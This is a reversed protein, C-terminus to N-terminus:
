IVLNLGVTFFDATYEKSFKFESFHWRYGAVLVLGGNGVKCIRLGIRPTIYFGMNGDSSTNESYKYEPIWVGSPTYHGSEGTKSRISVKAHGYVLGGEAEIFLVRGLWYRYNAGINLGWSSNETVMENTEGDGFYVGFSLYDFVKANFNIGYGGDVGFYEIGLGNQEYKKDSDTSFVRNDITSAMEVSDTGHINDTVITQANITCVFTFACLILFVKKKLQTKRNKRM